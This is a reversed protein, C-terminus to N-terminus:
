PTEKGLQKNIEGVTYKSVYDSSPGGDGVDGLVMQLLDRLRVVEDAADLLAPAANHLAAILEARVEDDKQSTFCVFKFKTDAIRVRWQSGSHQEAEWQEDGVAELLKRLATTDPTPTMPNIPM